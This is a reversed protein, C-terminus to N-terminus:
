HEYHTYLLSLENSIPKTKGPACVHGLYYVYEDLATRVSNFGTVKCTCNRTGWVGTM